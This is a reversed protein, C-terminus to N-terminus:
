SGKRRLGRITSALWKCIWFFGVILIIPLIFILFPEAGRYSELFAKIQTFDGKLAEPGFTVIVLVLCFASAVGLLNLFNRSM